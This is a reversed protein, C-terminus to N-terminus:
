ARDIAGDGNTDATEFLRAMRGEATALGAGLAVGTLALAAATAFALRSTRIM